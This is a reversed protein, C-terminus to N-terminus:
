LRMGFAQEGTRSPLRVFGLRDYFALAGANAADAVLHLGPVGRARLADALTAVLRRGWGRGRLEPLLDIHLHAPYEDAYPSAGGRREGAYRLLDTQRANVGPRRYAPEHRPWWEDHFWDEFARTGPACVVYGAVRGDDTEAVFALDPHRQVYPLAFIAAWLGDDDLIGTADGGTEATRVCIDALAAEEGPAFPRVRAM